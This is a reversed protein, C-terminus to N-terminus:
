WRKRAEKRADFVGLPAVDALIDESGDREPAQRAPPQQRPEPQAPSAPPISPVTVDTIAAVRRERRTANRGPRPAKDEPGAHARAILDQAAQAIEAETPNGGKERLDALAHDWALQGFPAPKGNLVKWYALIWEGKESRHNRVWVRTIDYPDFHIEWLNKRSKVGSPERHHPRLEKSDYVRHGLKVGYHSVARWEAPLLEIYDDGSLAVPVYGAAKVLAAYKENPTFTRGPALPDRLGDHPRNQWFIVWEDFLEQLEPLTWLGDTQEVRYGRREVSSGLYGSVFQAFVTGVSSMMKEIHPKEAPSGPHAPQLDIGLQQCSARFNNSIFVNGQDCVIVEPIIVPKAAAHELREDISLLSDYPLVSRSMHLAKVWGPRMVEPTVTRALLLSADVSKTAPRVVGATVTRTAVDIMGTLDVRGVVGRPLRVAIDLPTSDIEMLEGPRLVTYTGYPGKPQSAMTRRTRASGTTHRGHSLRKFLRFFTARSPMPVTGPGHEAALVQETKWMLFTATRTSKDTAEEIVQQLAAVVREDAWGTESRGRDYRADVLGELGRDEYRKRKRRLTRESVDDRGAAALEAAKARERDRLTTAAPDYEPRPPTGAAAGPAMGTLVEVIHGEWWRADNLVHEPLLALTGSALRRPRQDLSGLSGFECLEPLTVQTSEGAATELTVLTGSLATVTRAKGDFRVEDGVRLVRADLNV